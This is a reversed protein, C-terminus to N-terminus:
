NLTLSDVIYTLDSAKWSFYVYFLTIYQDFSSFTVLPECSGLGTYGMPAFSWYKNIWHEGCCLSCSCNIGWLGWIVLVLQIQIEKGNM